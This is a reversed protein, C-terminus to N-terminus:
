GERMQRALRRQQSFSLAERTGDVRQTGGLMDDSCTLTRLQYLTLRGVETPGMGFEMFHRLIRRWPIYRVKNEGPSSFERARQEPWDMSALHDCGSILDRARTFDRAFTAGQRDLYAMSGDLTVFAPHGSSRLGHWATEAIGPWTYLYAHMDEVPVLRLSRNQKLDQQARELLREAIQEDLEPHQHLSDLVRSLPDGRRSLLGAELAAIVSLTMPELLYTGEPVGAGAPLTFPMGSAMIRCLGDM